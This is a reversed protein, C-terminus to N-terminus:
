RSIITASCPLRAAYRDASANRKGAEALSAPNVSELGLFVGMCGAASMTGVLAPDDAVDATVAASWIKGVPKLALCLSRLYERDSGLNNDIFM